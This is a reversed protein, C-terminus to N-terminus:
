FGLQELEDMQGTFVVHIRFKQDETMRSPPINPAVINGDGDLYNGRADRIMWYGTGTHVWSQRTGKKRPNPRMFRIRTNGKEDIMKWGRGSDAPVIRWGPPKKRKVQKPSVGNFSWLPNPVNSYNGPPFVYVSEGELEGDLPWGHRLQRRRRWYTHFDNDGYEWESEKKATCQTCQCTGTHGGGVGLRLQRRQKWHLYQTPEKTSHQVCHSCTCGNSHHSDPLEQALIEDLLTKM